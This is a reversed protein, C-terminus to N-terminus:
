PSGFLSYIPNYNATTQFDWATLSLFSLCSSSGLPFYVDSKEGRVEEIEWNRRKEIM